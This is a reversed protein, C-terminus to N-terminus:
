SQGEFATPKQPITSGREGNGKSGSSTRLYEHMADTIYFVPKHDVLAVEYEDVSVSTSRRGVALKNFAYYIGTSRM